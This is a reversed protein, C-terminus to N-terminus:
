IIKMLNVMENESLKDLFQSNPVEREQLAQNIDKELMKVSQDNEHNPFRKKMEQLCDNSLTLQNIEFLARALRFHAKVYHSDFKLAQQCDRLAEYCDGSYKRRMLATARNLYLVPNDPSIQIAETYMRIAQIYKENELFDNGSKKLKNVKENEQSKPSSVPQSLKPLNLYVPAESKDIDFLYIQDASYNVLLEKGDPSFSVFTVMKGYNKKAAQLHGPSYYRVCERSWNDNLEDNEKNNSMLKINRRDYLRAFDDNAGIALLEPRRPNVALCKVESIAEQHNRLDVLVIKDDSQCTHPERLDIQFVRGDESATFFTSPVEPACAIRKVRGQHCRCKFIPEETNQLDHVYICNDAACTVIKQDSSKPLFRVSFINGRHPTNFSSIKKKRYCDWLIVCLDDSGSALIRGNSSFDLCNVCGEHGDLKTDLELRDVFPEFAQFDRLSIRIDLERNRLIKIINM